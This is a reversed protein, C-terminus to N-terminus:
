TRIWARGWSNLTREGHPWVGPADDISVHALEASFELRNGDPDTVMFFLNNGPGHRGPGFFIPVEAKAFLDGWDRMDNWESTEYCHHDWVNQSGQFFALTHHEDDSRMFVVMPKGSDDVVEDSIAFGIVETYFAIVRELETTQFVTHQLRGPMGNRQPGDAALGFSVLRGQPDRVMFAGSQYLVSDTPLCQVDSTTLRQRLRDLEQTSKLVFGSHPLRGSRSDSIEVARSPGTLVIRDDLSEVDELGLRARYFAALQQPDDSVIHLHHLRAPTAQQLTTVM